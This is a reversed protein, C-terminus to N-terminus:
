PKKGQSDGRDANRPADYGCGLPFDFTAISFDLALQRYLCSALPNNQCNLKAPHGASSYLQQLPLHSM